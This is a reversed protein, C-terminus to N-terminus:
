VHANGVRQFFSIKISVYARRVYCMHVNSRSAHCCQCLDVGVDSLRRVLGCEESCQGAKFKCQAASSSSSGLQALEPGRM